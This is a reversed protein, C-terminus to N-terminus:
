EAINMVVATMDDYKSRIHESDRSRFRAADVIANVALEASNNDELIELIESTTLNDHIGDTTLIVRDGGYVDLEQVEIPPLNDISSGIFGFIRHRNRYTEYQEYNEIQGIESFESLFAQIEEIEEASQGPIRYGQDITLQCINGQRYLYARSDGTSALGLQEGNDSSFLKVAIATASVTRDGSLNLIADHGADIANLLARRRFRYSLDNPTHSLQENLVYAALQSANMSAVDHGMADIVGIAKANPNIFYSDANILADNEKAVSYGSLNYPDALYENNVPGIYQERMM